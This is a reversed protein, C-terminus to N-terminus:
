ILVQRFEFQAPQHELVEVGQEALRDFFGSADRDAHDALAHFADLMADIETHEARPNSTTWIVEAGILEVRYDVFPCCAAERQALDIVRARADPRFALVVADATRERRVLADAFLAAYERLRTDPTDTATSMDCAIPADDRPPIHLLLTM